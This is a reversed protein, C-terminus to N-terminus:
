DYVRIVNEECDKNTVTVWHDGAVNIIQVFDKAGREVKANAGKFALVSHLGKAAPYQQGILWQGHDIHEDTLWEGQLLSITLKGLDPVASCRLINSAKSSFEAAPRRIPEPNASAPQPTKEPLPSASIDCAPQPTEERLPSPSIQSAPKPFEDTSAPPDPNLDSHHSQVHLESTLYPQLQEYAVKTKLPQADQELPALTVRQM